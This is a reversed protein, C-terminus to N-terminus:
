TLCRFDAAPACVDWCRRSASDVGRDGDGTNPGQLRLDARHKFGCRRLEHGLKQRVVGEGRIEKLSRINKSGQVGAAGETNQALAPAPFLLPSALGIVLGVALMPKCWNMLTKWDPQDAHTDRGDLQYQREPEVTCQRKLQCRQHQGALDPETTGQREIDAHGPQHHDFASRDTGGAHGSGYGAREQDAGVRSVEHGWEFVRGYSGRGDSSGHRCREVTTPKHRAANQAMGAQALLALSAVVFLRRM